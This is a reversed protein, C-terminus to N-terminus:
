CPVALASLFGAMSRHSYGDVLLLSQTSWWGPDESWHTQWSCIFQRLVNEHAPVHLQVHLQVPALCRSGEEEDNLALNWWTNSEM